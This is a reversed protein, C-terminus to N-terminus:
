LRLPLDIAATTGEGEVSTLELRGGAGAIIGRVISLGLGTGSQKTTFFPELVRGVVEPPMGPGDDRVVLRLQDGERRADLWIHGHEEMAQEANLLLNTLLQSLQVPSVAVPPLGEPVQVVLQAKELSARLMRRTYALAEDFSAHPEDDPDEDRPGAFTLLDGVIQELRRTAARADKLMEGLERDGSPLREVIADLNMSLAMLPNSVEHAVGAALTGISALRDRQMLQARARREETVNRVVVVREEDGYANPESANLRLWHEGVLIEISHTQLLLSVQETTLDFITGLSHGVPDATLALARVRECAFTVVGNPDLAVVGEDIRDIVERMRGTSRESETRLRRQGLIVGGLHAVRAVIDREADSPERHEKFYLGLTGCLRGPADYLPYSWAAQFDFRDILEHLEAWGEAERTIPDVIPEGDFAARACTGVRGIPADQLMRTYADPLAAGVALANLTRAYADYDLVTATVADLQEEVLEVLRQTLYETSRGEALAQIIRGQAEVFEAMSGRPARKEVGVGFQKPGPPFFTEERHAFACGTM